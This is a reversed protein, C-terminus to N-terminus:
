APANPEAAGLEYLGKMLEDHLDVGDALDGIINEDALTNALALVEDWKGRAFDGRGTRMVAWVKRQIDPPLGEIADRLARRTPEDDPLAGFSLTGAPHHEGRAARIEGLEAEPVATLANDRADRAAAALEAIRRTELVELEYLM